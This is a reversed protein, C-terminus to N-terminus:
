KIWSKKAIARLEEITIEGKIWKERAKKYEESFPSDNDLSSIIEADRAIRRREEIAKKSKDIKNM